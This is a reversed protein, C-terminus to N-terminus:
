QTFARCRELSILKNEFNSLAWLFSIIDDNIQIVYTILLGVMGAALADSSNLLLKSLKIFISQSQSKSSCSCFSCNRIDYRFHSELQVM